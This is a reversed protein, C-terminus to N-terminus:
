PRDSVSTASKMQKPKIKFRALVILGGFAGALDIMVDWMTGNRGPVFTQHYEDSIAYLVAIVFASLFPRKWVGWAQYALLVLIAYATFHAGKKILLDWAGADPLSESPQASMFYIAGMWLLLPLWQKLIQKTRM